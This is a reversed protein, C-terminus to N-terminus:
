NDVKLKRNRFLGLSLLAIVSFIGLSGGGSGGGGNSPPTPEPEPSLWDGQQPKDNTFMFQDPQNSGAFGMDVRGKEGNDSILTVICSDFPKVATCYANHGVKEYSFNTIRVDGSAVLIAEIDLDGSKSLNQFRVDVQVGQPLMQVKPSNLANIEWLIHSQFAPYAMTGVATARVGFKGHSDWEPHDRVAELFTDVNDWYSGGGMAKNEEYGFSAVDAMAATHSTEGYQANEGVFYTATSSAVVGFIDWDGTRQNEIRIGSGSNGGQSMVFNGEPRDGNPNQNWVVWSVSGQRIGEEDNSMFDYPDQICKFGYDDYKRTCNTADGQTDFPYWIAGNASELRSETFGTYENEPGIGLIMVEQINGNNHTTYGYPSDAGLLKIESFEAFYGTATINPSDEMKILAVDANGYLAENIVDMGNVKTRNYRGLDPNKDYMPQTNEDWVLDSNFSSAREEEFLVWGNNLQPDGVKAEVSLRGFFEDRDAVTTPWSKDLTAAREKMIEGGTRNGEICHDATLVWKHAIITSTCYSGSYSTRAIEPHDSYNAPNGNIIAQAQFSLVSGIAVVLLSKKMEKTRKILDKNSVNLIGSTNKACAWKTFFVKYLMGNVMHYLIVLLRGILGNVIYFIM